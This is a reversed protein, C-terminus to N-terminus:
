KCDKFVVSIEFTKEIIPKLHLYNKIGYINGLESLSGNTEYVEFDKGSCLQYMIQNGYKDYLYDVMYNADGKRILWVWDETGKLVEVILLPFMNNEINFKFGSVKCHQTRIFKNAKFFSVSQNLVTYEAMVAPDTDTCEMYFYTDIVISHKKYAVTDKQLYHNPKIKLLPHKHLTDRELFVTDHNISSISLTPVCIAVSSDSDIVTSINPSFKPHENCYLLLCLLTFYFFARNYLKFKKSLFSISM